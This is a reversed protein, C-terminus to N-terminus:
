RPPTSWWQESRPENYADLYEDLRSIQGDKVTCVVCLPVSRGDPASHEWLATFGDGDEHIHTRLQTIVPDQGRAVLADVYPGMDLTRLDPGSDPFHSRWLAMNPAFLTKHELTPHMLWGVFRVAARRADERREARADTDDATVVTDSPM